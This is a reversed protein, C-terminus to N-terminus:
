SEAWQKAWQLTAAVQEPTSAECYLRLLPETGSFRVLLWSQDALTFKYGDISLVKVVAKGMIETPPQNLLQAQLKDRVAESALPLDIRDYVATYSTKTQLDQYLASLDAGSKAMAELLYLASLLGDREPIHNGYGIGGSEEGGLLVGDTEMMCDAIYKFGIPTEQLPLDYLKAILPILDSSSISKIVAGQMGRRQALHDMLIPILMQASLFNGHRDIAAIRDGDGDFVLCLAQQQPTLTQGFQQLTNLSGQLYRAIPEPAGGGFLPDREGNLEKIGAGLIQQLGGATAGYMADVFVTLQGSAMAQQIPTLDVKSALVECYDPWPNFSQISGMKGAPTATVPPAAQLLDEIRGTISPPVSGGFAGKVKLGSYSGPNHSATIVLAGLAKAKYLAWSLAPTPAYRDALLVDFGAQRTAIATAQAFEESLFRRDYGIVITNSGQSQGSSGYAERLAQAAYPVVRVLREFTFDSAIVGRWGDTGFKIPATAPTVSIPVAAM